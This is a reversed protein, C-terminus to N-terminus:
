DQALLLVLSDIFGLFGTKEFFRTEKNRKNQPRDGRAYDISAQNAASTSASSHPHTTPPRDRLTASAVDSKEVPNRM